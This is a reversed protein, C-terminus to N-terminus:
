NLNPISRVFHVMFVPFGPVCSYISNESYYCNPSGVVSPMAPISPLFLFNLFTVLELWM